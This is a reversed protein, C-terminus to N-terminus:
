LTAHKREKRDEMAREISDEYCGVCRDIVWCEHIECHQLDPRDDDVEHDGVSMEDNGLEYAKPDVTM